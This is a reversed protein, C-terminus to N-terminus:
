GIVDQDLVEKYMNYRDLSLWYVMWLQKPDMDAPRILKGPPTSLM